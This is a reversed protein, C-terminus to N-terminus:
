SLIKPKRGSFLLGIGAGILIGSTFDTFDNELIFQIIIGIFLIGLGIIRTKNM